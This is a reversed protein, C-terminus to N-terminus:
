CRQLTGAYNVCVQATGSGALTAIKVGGNVDLKTTPSTTGIGVDGTNTIIMSTAPSVVADATTAGAGTLFRIRGWSPEVASYGYTAHTGATHYVNSNDVYLNSGFVGHGGPGGSIQAGFDSYSQIVSRDNGYVSLAEGPSTTGIGVNGKDVITMRSLFVGNPDNRDVTGFHLKWGTNDGWLIQAANPSTGGANFRLGTISTAIGSTEYGSAIHLSASPNTTGIGVNGTDKIVMVPTEVFSSAIASFRAIDIGENFGTHVLLGPSHYGHINALFGSPNSNQTGGSIELSNKPSSTGIGVKGAKVFIADASAFPLICFLALICFTTIIQKKM